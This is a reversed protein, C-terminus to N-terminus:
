DAIENLKEWITRTTGTSHERVLVSVARGDVWREVLIDGNQRTLIVDEAVWVVGAKVGFLAAQLRSQRDM